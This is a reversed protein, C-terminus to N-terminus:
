NLHNLKEYNGDYDFAEISKKKEPDSNNIALFVESQQNTKGEFFLLENSELTRKIM